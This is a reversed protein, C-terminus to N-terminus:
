RVPYVRRPFPVAHGRHQRVRAGSWPEAFQLGGGSDSSGGAGGGGGGGGKMSATIHAQARAGYELYYKDDGGTEYQLLNLMWVRGAQFASDQFFDMLPGPRGMIAELQAKSKGEALQRPAQMDMDFDPKAGAIAGTGGAQNLWFADCAYMETSELADVRHKHAQRYADTSYFDAFAAPSPYEGIFVGDWQPVLGGGDVVTRVSHYLRFVCKGGMAHMLPALAETYKKYSRTAGDKFRLM